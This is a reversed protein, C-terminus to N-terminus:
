SGFKQWAVGAAGIAGADNGLQALTIETRVPALTWTLKAFHERVPRLLVEGAKVMGGALVIEDPDYIRCINVCGLALYRTMEDWQQAALADGAAAADEVDKSGITGTDKLRRALEGDCGDQEIQRRARAAMFTASCYRELCGRQGCNCPEGDPVIIMHGLEPAQEGGGHFVQGDLIVGSGVGTGLTLLVMLRAKEGAGCLFEGLAAANADNELVAPRGLRESVMQALPADKMGPINPMAVVVGESIRLPGPAGIGVGLVAEAAIGRANMVRRAGEAICDAVAEAGDGAPTPLAIVEGLAYMADLAVFKIYTGGLDIGICYQTM